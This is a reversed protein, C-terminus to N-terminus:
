QEFGLLITEEFDSIWSHILAKQQDSLPNGKKPMRNKVIAFDIKMLQKVSLNNPKGEATFLPINDNVSHCKVCNNKFIASVNDPINSFPIPPPPPVDGDKIKNQINDNRKNIYEKIKNQPKSIQKIPPDDNDISKNNTDPNNNKNNEFYKLLADIKADRNAQEQRSQDDRQQQGVIDYDTVAIFQYQPQYYPQQYTYPQQYYQNVILLSLLIIM